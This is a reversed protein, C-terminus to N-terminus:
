TEIRATRVRRVGATGTADLERLFEELVPALATGEIRLGLDRIPRSSLHAEQFVTSSSM